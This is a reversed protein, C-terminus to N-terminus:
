HGARGRRLVRVAPLGFLDLQARQPDLVARRVHVGVGLFASRILRAHGAIRAPHLRQGFRGRRDGDQGLGLDLFGARGVQAVDEVARRAHGDACALVAVGEAVAVDDPTFFHAAVHEDVASGPM